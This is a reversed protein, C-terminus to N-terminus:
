PLPLNEFKFPVETQVIEIPADMVFKFPAQLKKRTGDEAFPANEPLFTARIVTNQGGTSNYGQNRLTVGNADEIRMASMIPETQELPYGIREYSQEADSSNAEIKVKLGGEAEDTNLTAEVKFAITQGGNEFTHTWSPAALLDPVEWKETKTVVAYIVAGELHALTKADPAPASLNVSVNKQQWSSNSYFSYRNMRQQNRENEDLQPVLSRGQDDDARTVRTQPSGIIPLRPDSHLELNANLSNNQSREPAKIDRFTVTKNFSAGLGSLGIEFLGVGAKPMASKEEQTGFFLHLDQNGGWDQLSAKLGAEDMIESFARNFSPTELHISLKKDLQGDANGQQTEFRVGSQKKLEDLVTGLTADDFNLVIPQTISLQQAKEPAVLPFPLDNVLKPATDAPQASAAVAVSLLASFLTLTKM